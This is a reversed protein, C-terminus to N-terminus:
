IDQSSAKSVIVSFILSVISRSPGLAMEKACPVGLPKSSKRNIRSALRRLVGFIEVGPFTQWIGLSVADMRVQPNKGM